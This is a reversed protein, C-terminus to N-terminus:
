IKKSVFINAIIYIILQICVILGMYVGLKNETFALVVSLIAELLISIRFTIAMSNISIEQLREDTLEIERKKYIEPNFVARGNKILLVGAAAILGVGFGLGYLLVLIGIVIFIVSIVCKRIIKNKM